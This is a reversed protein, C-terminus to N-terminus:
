QFTYVHPPQQAAPCSAANHGLESCQHCRQDNDNVFIRFSENEFHVLFSNPLPAADNEEIFVARRFSTVHKYKQLKHDPITDTTLGIHLEHIASVTKVNAQQLADMIISNPLCTHVNSLIIRKSPTVLRRVKIVEGKVELKGFNTIFNDVTRESNLYVCIRKNAIKSASIINHPGVIKGLSIVYEILNTEDNAPILVAQKKSPTSQVIRSYSVSSNPQNSM